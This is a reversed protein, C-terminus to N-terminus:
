NCKTCDLLINILINFNVLCKTYGSMLCTMFELFADRIEYEDFTFEEDEPDIFRTNFAFDVQDLMPDPRVIM